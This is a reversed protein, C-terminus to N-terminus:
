TPAPPRGEFYWLRAWGEDLGVVVEAVAPKGSDGPEPADPTQICPVGVRFVPERGALVPLLNGCIVNLLERLADDQQEASSPVSEDLGLMGAAVVALLDSPTQLRVAGEWIGSFAVTVTRTSGLDEPLTDEGTAFVFALEEFTQVAVDRLKTAADDTM